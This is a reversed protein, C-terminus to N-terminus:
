PNFIIDGCKCKWSLPKYNSHDNFLSTITTVFHGARKKEQPVVPVQVLECHGCSICRRECIPPRSGIIARMAGIKEERGKSIELLKYLSRGEASCNQQKSSMLLLLSLQLLHIRLLHGM